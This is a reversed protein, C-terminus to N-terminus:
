DAICRTRMKVDINAEPFDFTVRQTANPLLTLSSYQEALVQSQDESLLQARVRNEGAANGTNQFTCHVRVCYDGVVTCNEDSLADTAVFNAAPPPTNDSLNAIIGIVFLVVVAGGIFTLVPHSNKKVVVPQQTAVYQPAPPPAEVTPPVPPPTPARRLANGCNACFAATESVEKGCQECYHSAM